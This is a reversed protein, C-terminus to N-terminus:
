GNKQQTPALLVSTVRHNVESEYDDLELLFWFQKLFQCPGPVFKMKLKGMSLPVRGLPESVGMERYWTLDGSSDLVFFRESCYNSMEWLLLKGMREVGRCLQSVLSQESDYKLLWFIEHQLFYVVSSPTAKESCKLMVPLTPNKVNIMSGGPLLKSLSGVVESFWQRGLDLLLDHGTSRVNFDM